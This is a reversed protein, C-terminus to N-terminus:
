LSSSTTELADLFEIPTKTQIGIKILEEESRNWWKVRLFREIIESTFRYKVVCAPNGVVIAYPPIDRTVVSGAGVVAGDGITINDMITVNLGVWVDNGITIHGRSFTKSFSPHTSTHKYDHHTMVFVANKGISCYRGINLYPKDNTNIINGGYYAADYPSSFYSGYGIKFAMYALGYNM